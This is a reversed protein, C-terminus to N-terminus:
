KNLAKLAIERADAFLDEASRFDEGLLIRDLESIQRLAQRYDFVEGILHGVFADMEAWDSM